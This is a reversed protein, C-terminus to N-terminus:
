CLLFVSFAKEKRLKKISACSVGTADATQKLPGQTQQCRNLEEFYEYANAVVEKTQSRLRKGKTDERARSFIHDTQM